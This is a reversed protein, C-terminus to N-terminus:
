GLIQKLENILEDAKRTKSPATQTIKLKTFKDYAIAQLAGSLTTEVKIIYEKNGDTYEIESPIISEKITTSLSILPTQSTNSITLSLTDLKIKIANIMKQFIGLITQIFGIMLIYNNIKDELEKGYDSDIRDAVTYTSAAPKAPSPSALDASAALAQAQLKKKNIALKLKLAVLGTKLIKLVVLISDVITKLIKILKKLNSVKRDFDKKFQDYNGPNRPVFTIAGNVVEVRGKDKLKRKTDNIIKNLIANASKEAKIFKTLLPLIIGVIAKKADSPSTNAEEKIFNTKDDLSKKLNDAKAQQQGKIKDISSSIKTQDVM